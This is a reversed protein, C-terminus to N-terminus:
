HWEHLEESMLYLLLVTRSFLINSIEWHQYTLLNSLNVLIQLEVIFQPVEKKEEKKASFAQCNKFIQAAGRGSNLYSADSTSM